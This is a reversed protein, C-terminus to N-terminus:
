SSLHHFHHHLSFFHPKPQTNTMQFDCRPYSPRFVFIACVLGQGREDEPVYVHQMDMITGGGITEDGSPVLEFELYAAKRFMILMGHNKSRMQVRFKDDEYGDLCSEREHSADPM